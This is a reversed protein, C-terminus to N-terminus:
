GFLYHYVSDMVGVFELFLSKEQNEDTENEPIEDGSDKEGFSPIKLEKANKIKSYELEIDNYSSHIEIYGIEKPYPVTVAFDVDNLEVIGGSIEGTTKDIFDEYKKNSIYFYSKYILEESQSYVEISAKEMGINEATSSEVFVPVFGKTWSIGKVSLVNDNYNLTAFIIKEPKSDAAASFAMASLMLMACFIGSVILKLVGSKASTKGGKGYGIKM